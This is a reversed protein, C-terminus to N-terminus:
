SRREDPSAPRVLSAALLAFIPVLPARRRADGDPGGSLLLLARAVACWLRVPPSGLHRWAGAAALALLAITIACLAAAL